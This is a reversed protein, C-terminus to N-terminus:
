LGLPEARLLELDGGSLPLPVKWSFPFFFRCGLRWTGGGAIGTVPQRPAKALTAGLLRVCM